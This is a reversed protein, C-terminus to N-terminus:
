KVNDKAEEKSILEATMNATAQSTGTLCINFGCQEIGPRKYKVPGNFNSQVTNAGVVYFNPNDFYYCAPFISCSNETLDLKNNGAAVVIKTGQDLLDGLITYENFDFPGGAGSINIYDPKLFKLYNIVMTAITRPDRRNGYPLAYAHFYKIIALCHTKSNMKSAIIGAINTGHGNETADQLGMQTFDRSLNECLLKNLNPINRIGSDLIAIVKRTEKSFSLCSFLLSSLMLKKIVNRM